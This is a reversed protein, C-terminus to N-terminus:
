QRSNISSYLRLWLIPVNLLLGPKATLRTVVGDVPALIRCRKLQLTRQEVEAKTTELLSRSNELEAPSVVGKKFMALDRKHESKALSHSSQARELGIRYDDEEIRALLDGKKVREGEIVAVSEITGNLKSLLNLELWPEIAGPLNIRDAIMTPVLQHVVVNVPPQEAKGAGAKQEDLRNKEAGMVFFLIVIVALLGLVILRPLNAMLMHVTKARPTTPKYYEMNTRM